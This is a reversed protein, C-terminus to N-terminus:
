PYQPLLPRFHIKVNNNKIQEVETANRGVSHAENATNTAQGVFPDSRFVYKTLESATGARVTVTNSRDSYEVCM